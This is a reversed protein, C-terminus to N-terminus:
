INTITSEYINILMNLEDVNKPMEDDDWDVQIFFAELENGSFTVVMVDKWEGEINLSEAWVLATGEEDDSFVYDPRHIRYESSPIYDVSLRNVKIMREFKM